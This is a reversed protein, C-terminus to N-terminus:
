GKAGIDIEKNICVPHNIPEVVNGRNLYFDPDLAAKASRVQDAAEEGYCKLFDPRKRKGTGHEASYVGGLKASKEIIQRYAELAKSQQNKTPILHFHLHCDGLHGFLLYEIDATQLISHTIELFEPFNEPPVITDTLISWTDMQRTKELANAPISHRAEFFTQWNQPTNLLLIGDEHIGCNSKTLINLWDEAVDEVTENYLPIQLYIGVESNSYFLTERHDMFNQCNYGFYELATIQSLDGEFHNSIYQHFRVADMENPLTFFMDLFEDPMEKLRFTASTILGFIGESGILLDVLDVIGNEDSFPGSANKIDPRPYSPLEVIVEGNPFDFVFEGNNSIYDGRNCSVKFGNPTLFELGETWYRTAGAPGPIFGSANCSLTGGVMAEKRSTPDVPYHLKNNSQRLAAKRMDELYIGVPTTLIKSEINVKVSPQTMKEISLVVGGEPTASGTLNTRGASITLPIKASQCCRLVLACELENIPRCLVEANGTINSSDREYGNVIDLDSTIDIKFELSLFEVLDSIIPNKEAWASIKEVADDDLISQIPIRKKSM